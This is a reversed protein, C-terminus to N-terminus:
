INEHYEIQFVSEIMVFNKQAGLIREVGNDSVFSRKPCINDLEENLQFNSLLSFQDEFLAKEAAQIKDLDRHTAYIAKTLTISVQRQTTVQNCVTRSTNLSPGFHIAYGNELFREDNNEILMTDPLSYRTPFLTEVITIFEDYITTIKSM